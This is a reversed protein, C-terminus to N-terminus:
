LHLFYALVVAWLPLTIMDETLTFVNWIFQASHCWSSDNLSQSLSWSGPSRVHFVFDRGPPSSFDLAIPRKAAQSAGEM